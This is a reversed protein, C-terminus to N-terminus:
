YNFGARGGCQQGCNDVGDKGMSQRRMWARRQERLCMQWTQWVPRKRWTREDMRELAIM